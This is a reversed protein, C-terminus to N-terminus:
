GAPTVGGEMFTRSTNKRSADELAVHLKGDAAVVEVGGPLPLGGGTLITQALASKEGFCGLGVATSLPRTTSSRSGSAESLQLSSSM